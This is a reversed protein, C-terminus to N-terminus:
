DKGDDSRLNPALAEALSAQASGPRLPQQQSPDPAWGALFIMDFTAIIRGGEAPFREAYIEAMRAFLARPTMGQWRRALANTEGMRRLDEILNFPSAYSVSLPVIDAVPLAFGARQLLAGADAIHVMPAVRPTVGGKLETEAALFSQRLETLTEGGFLCGLFMGDPRLAQRHRTLEGLPDNSWHLSLPSVILDPQHPPDEGERLVPQGLAPEWFDPFPSVTIPATFTRNVEILREQLEDAAAQHLFDASPLDARRRHQSLALLNTLPPQNTM